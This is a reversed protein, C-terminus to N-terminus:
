IRTTSSVASEGCLVQGTRDGPTIGLPVPCRGDKSVTSSSVKSV